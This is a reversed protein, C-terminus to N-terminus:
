KFKTFNQFEKHILLTVNTITKQIFNMGFLFNSFLSSNLANHVLISGKQSKRNSFFFAEKM